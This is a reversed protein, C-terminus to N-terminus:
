AKVCLGSEACNVRPLLKTSIQSYMPLAQKLDKKSGEFSIDAIIAFIHHKQNKM